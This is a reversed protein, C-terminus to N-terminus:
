LWDTDLNIIVFGLADHPHVALLVVLDDLQPGLSVHHKLVHHIARELVAGLHEAFVVAHVVVSVADDQGIVQTDSVLIQPALHVFLAALHAHEIVRTLSRDRDPAASDYFVNHLCQSTDHNARLHDLDILLM